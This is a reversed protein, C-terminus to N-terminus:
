ISTWSQTGPLSPVPSPMTGTHDTICIHELRNDKAYRLIAEPTQTPDGSCPSLHSHIHYDHDIKYKM